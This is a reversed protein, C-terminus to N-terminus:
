SVWDLADDIMGGEPALPSADVLDIAHVVLGLIARTAQEGDWSPGFSEALAEDAGLKDAIQQLRSDDHVQPTNDGNM